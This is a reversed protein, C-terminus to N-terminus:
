KKDDDFACQSGLMAGLLATDSLSLEDRMGFAIGAAKCPDPKGKSNRSMEIAGMFEIDRILDDFFGM